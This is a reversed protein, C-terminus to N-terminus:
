LPAGQNFIMDMRTVPESHIHVTLADLLVFEDRRQKLVTPLPCTRPDVVSAALRSLMTSLTPQLRRASSMAHIAGHRSLVGLYERRRGVLHQLQRPHMSAVRGGEVQPTGQSGGRQLVRLEVNATSPGRGDDACMNGM